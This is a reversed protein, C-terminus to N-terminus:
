SAVPDSSPQGTAAFIGFHEERWKQAAAAAEELVTFLGLHFQRGDRQGYAAWKRLRKNWSVGRRSSTSDRRAPTNAMNESRSAPRLNGWWNDDKGRNIHDVDAAPLSGAMYLFALRHAM